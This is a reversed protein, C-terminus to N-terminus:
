VVSSLPTYSNYLDYEAEYYLRGHMVSHKTTFGIIVDYWAEYECYLRHYMVGCRQYHRHYTM